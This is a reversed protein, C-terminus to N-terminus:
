TSSPLSCSCLIWLTLLLSVGVASLSLLRKGDNMPVLISLWDVFSSPGCEQVNHRSTAVNQKGDTGM